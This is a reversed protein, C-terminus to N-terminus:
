EPPISFGYKAKLVENLASSKDMVLNFDRIFRHNLDEFRYDRSSILVERVAEDEIDHLDIVGLRQMERTWFEDFELVEKCRDVFESIFLKLDFITQFFALDFVTPDNCLTQFDDLIIRLLTGQANKAICIMELNEDYEPRHCEHTYSNLSDILGNIDIFLIRAIKEEKRKKEKEEKYWVHIEYFVFGVVISLLASVYGILLDDTM